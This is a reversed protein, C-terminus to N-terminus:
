RKILRYTSINNKMSIHVFYLGQSLNSIDLSTSSTNTQDIHVIQGLQNVIKINKSIGDAKQDFALNVKGSSPNPYMSNDFQQFDISTVVDAWAKALVEPHEIYPNKNGQYTAIGDNRDLEAQDVPDLEHWSLLEEVDGVDEIGRFVLDNDEYMTYFYLIARAVNGKHDERPEFRSFGLSSFESYLDIDTSPTSSREQDLYMWKTTREDDIDRFPHNSRVSNWNGYTPFLHHLDSRMPESSDDQGAPRYFSQPVTHEANIPNPNSDTGGYTFDVTYGSYVCYVKDDKNDIYNYMERRANRYLDTYVPNDFRDSTNEWHHGDYWNEKLWVRLDKGTLNDPPASQSMSLHATLLSLCVIGLTTKYLAKM